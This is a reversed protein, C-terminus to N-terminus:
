REESDVAEGFLVRALEALSTGTAPTLLTLAVWAVENLPLKARARGSASWAGFNVDLHHGSRLTTTAKRIGADHGLATTVFSIDERAFVDGGDESAFKLSETSNTAEFENVKIAARKVRGHITSVRPLDSPTLPSADIGQLRDSIWAQHGHGRLSLAGRDISWRYATDSSIPGGRDARVICAKAQLRSLCAEMLRQFAPTEGMSELSLLVEFDVSKALGDWFDRDSLDALDLLFSLADASLQSSLDIAGGPFESAIGGSGVWVAQLVNKLRRSEHSDLSSEIVSVAAATRERDVDQAGSFGQSVATAM